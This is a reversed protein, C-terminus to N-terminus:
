TQETWLSFTSCPLCVPPESLKASPCEARGSLFGEGGCLGRGENEGAAGVDVIGVSDM